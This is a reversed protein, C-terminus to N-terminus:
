DNTTKYQINVKGANNEFRSETKFTRIEAPYIFEVTENDLWNVMLLSDKSIKIREFQDAIFTNGVDENTLEYDYGQISAQISNSVTANGLKEFIIVKMSQKPNYYEKILENQGTDFIQCSSFLTLILIWAKYQKDNIKEQMDIQVNNDACLM